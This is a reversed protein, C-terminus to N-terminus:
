ASVLKKERLREEKDLLTRYSKINAQMMDWEPGEYTGIIDGLPHDDGLLPKPKNSTNSKTEENVITSNEM